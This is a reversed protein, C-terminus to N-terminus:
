LWRWAWSFFCAGLMLLVEFGLAWFEIIIVVIIFIVIVIVVIVLVLVLVLVVVGLGVAAAVVVIVVVVFLVQESSGKCKQEKTKEGSVVLM